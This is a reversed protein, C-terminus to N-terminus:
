GRSSRVYGPPLRAEAAVYCENVAAAAISEDCAFIEVQSHSCPGLMMVARKRSCDTGHPRLGEGGNGDGM